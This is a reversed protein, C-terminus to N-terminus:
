LKASGLDCFFVNSFFSSFVISKTVREAGRAVRSCYQARRHGKDQQPPAHPPGRSIGVSRQVNVRHAKRNRVQKVRQQPEPGRNSGYDDRPVPLSPVPPPPALPNNSNETAM